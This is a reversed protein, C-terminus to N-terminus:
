GGSQPGATGARTAPRILARAAALQRIVADYGDLDRPKVIYAGTPRKPAVEAVAEPVARRNRKRSLADPGYRYM